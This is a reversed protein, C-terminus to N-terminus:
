YMCFQWPWAVGLPRARAALGHNLYSSLLRGMNPFRFFGGMEPRAPRPHAGEILILYERGVSVVRSAPVSESSARGCGDPHHLSSRPLGRSWCPPILIPHVWSLSSSSSSSEPLGFLFGTAFSRSCLCCGARLFVCTSTLRTCYTSDSYLSWLDQGGGEGEDTRLGSKVCVCARVSAPISPM